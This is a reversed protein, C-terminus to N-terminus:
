QVGRSRLLAFVGLQQERVRRTIEAGAPHEHGLLVHAVIDHPEVGLLSAPVGRGRLPRRLRLRRRRTPLPKSEQQDVSRRAADWERLLVDLTRVRSLCGQGKSRKNEGERLWSGGFISTLPALPVVRSVNRWMPACGRTAREAIRCSLKRGIELM